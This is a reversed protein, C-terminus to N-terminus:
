GESSTFQVMLLRAFTGGVPTTFQGQFARLPITSQSYSIQLLKSSLM